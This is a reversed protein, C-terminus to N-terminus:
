ARIPDSGNDASVAPNKGCILCPHSMMVGEGGRDIRKVLLHTVESLYVHSVERSHRRLDLHEPNRSAVFRFLAHVASLRVNRTAVGNNREKELYSLFALIGPPDLDKLDLEAVTRKSRVSLFRLLLVVTDRYSHITHPSTGRVRPLHDTFYDRVIAGLLNPLKRKM